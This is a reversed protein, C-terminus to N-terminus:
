GSSNPGERIARACLRNNTLTKQVAVADVKPTKVIRVLRVPRVVLQIPKLAEQPLARFSGAGILEDTRYILEGVNV